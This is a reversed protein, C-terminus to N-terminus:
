LRNVAKQMGRRRGRFPRMTLMHIMEGYEARTIAQDDVRGLFQRWVTPLSKECRWCFLGGDKPCGCWCAPATIVDALAAIPVPVEVHRAITPDARTM